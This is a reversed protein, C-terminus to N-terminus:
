SEADADADALEAQGPRGVDLGALAAVEMQGEGTLLRHPEPEHLGLGLGVASRDPSLRSIMRATGEASAAGPPLDNRVGHDLPVPVGDVGHIIIM